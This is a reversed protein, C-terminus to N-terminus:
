LQLESGLVVTQRPPLHFAETRKAQNRDMSLFLRQHWQNWHRVEAPRLTLVSLFYLASDLDVDLEPHQSLGYRLNAPIDQDDAFGARVTV